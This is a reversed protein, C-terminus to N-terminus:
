ANKSSPTSVKTMRGPKEPLTSLKPINIGNGVGGEILFTGSSM